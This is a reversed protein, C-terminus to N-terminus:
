GASRAGHDGPASGASTIIEFDDRCTGSLVNLTPIDAQRVSALKKDRSVVKLSSVSDIEAM